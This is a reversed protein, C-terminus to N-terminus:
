FFLLLGTDMSLLLNVANLHKIFRVMRDPHNIVLLANVARLGPNNRLKKKKVITASLVSVYFYSIFYHM